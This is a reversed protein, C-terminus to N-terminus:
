RRPTARVRARLVRDHVILLALFMLAPVLLWLASVSRQWLSIWAIVIFLLSTILRLVSIRRDQREYHAVTRRRAELRRSYDSRPDSDITM